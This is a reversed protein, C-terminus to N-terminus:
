DKFYFTHTWRPPLNALIPDKELGGGTLEFIEESIDTPFVVTDGYVDSASIKIGEFQKHDTFVNHVIPAFNIEVKVYDVESDCRWKENKRTRIFLGIGKRRIIEETTTPKIDPCMLNERM